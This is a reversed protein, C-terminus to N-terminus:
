HPLITRAFEFDRVTTTLALLIIRESIHCRCSLWQGGEFVRLRLSEIELHTLARCSYDTRGSM